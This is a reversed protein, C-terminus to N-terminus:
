LVPLSLKCIICRMSASGQEALSMTCPMLGESHKPQRMMPLAHSIFNDVLMGPKGSKLPTSVLGPAHGPAHYFQVAGRSPLWHESHGTPSFADAVDGSSGAHHNRREHRETTILPMRGPGSSSFDKRASNGNSDARTEWTASASKSCHPRLAPCSCYGFVDAATSCM